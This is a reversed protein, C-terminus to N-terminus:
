SSFSPSGDPLQEVVEGVGDVVDRGGMSSCGCAMTLLMQMMLRKFAFEGLRM